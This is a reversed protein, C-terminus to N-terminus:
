VTLSITLTQLRILTSSAVITEGLQKDGFNFLYCFRFILFTSFFDQSIM